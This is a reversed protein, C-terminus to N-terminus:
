VYKSDIFIEYQPPYLKQNTIKINCGNFVNVSYTNDDYVEIGIKKEKFYLETRKLNDVDFKRDVEKTINIKM